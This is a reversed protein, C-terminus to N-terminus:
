RLGTGSRQTRRATAYRGAIFRILARALQTKAARALPTVGDRAILLLENEEADFGADAGVRNAAVLDLRKRELKARANAELDDTEAAFGVTFPPHPLRAVSEVVDPTRELDLTLREAGKKLKHTAPAVPRYDAVAAVGIFVDAGAIRAHVADHMERASTVRVTEVREPDPLATPGSVLVV